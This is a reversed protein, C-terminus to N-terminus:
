KWNLFWFPRTQDGTFQVVATRTVRAGRVQADATVTFISGPRGLPGAVPPASDRSRLHDAVARADMGPIAALVQPVAVADNVSGDRGFTTLAPAVRAYLAPTIGPVSLLEDINRFAISTGGPKSATRRACIREALAQAQHPEIGASVFLRQLFEMSSFNLNIKGSEDQIRLRVAIGDLTVTAPTGDARPQKREDMLMLVARSVAADSAAGARIANWVNRDIHATTVAGSLMAAAILSLIAVGWLVSVLALGRQASCRGRTM